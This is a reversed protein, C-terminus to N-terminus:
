AGRESDLPRQDEAVGGAPEHRQLERQAMGPERGPQDQAVGRGRESVHRIGGRGGTGGLTTAGRGAGGRRPEEGAVEGRLDQLRESAKHKREVRGGPM